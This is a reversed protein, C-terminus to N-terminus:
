CRPEEADQFDGLLPSGEVLRYGHDGAPVIPNLALQYVSSRRVPHLKEAIGVLPYGRGVVSADRAHAQRQVRALVPLRRTQTHDTESDPRQCGVPTGAIEHTEVLEVRGDDANRALRAVEAEQPVAPCLDFHDSTIPADREGM